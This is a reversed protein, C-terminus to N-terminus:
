RPAGALVQGMWAETLEGDFVHVAPGTLFVHDDEGWDVHLVGGPFEVEAQRESM